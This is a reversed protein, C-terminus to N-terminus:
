KTITSIVNRVKKINDLQDQSYPEKSEPSYDLSSSKSAQQAEEINKDKESLQDKIFKNSRAISTDTEATRSFYYYCSIIFTIVCAIIILSPVLVLLWFCGSQYIRGDNYYCTLSCFGTCNLRTISPPQPTAQGANYTNSPPQLTIGCDISEQDSIAQSVVDAFLLTAICSFKNQTPNVTSAQSTFNILKSEGPQLNVPISNQTVDLTIGTDQGNPNCDLNLIYNTSVGVGQLSPNEVFVSILSNGGQLFNCYSQKPDIIGKSVETEYGVFTGVVDLVLEVALNSYYNLGNTTTPSFYLYNGGSNPGGFGLWWQPNSPDYLSQTTGNVEPAVFRNNPMYKIANAKMQDVFAQSEAQNGGYPLPFITNDYLGNAINMFQSVKCPVANKLGGNVINGLGPLCSHPDYNCFVNANQQNSNVSQAMGIKNCDTGFENALTVDDVFFWFTQGHDGPLSPFNINKGNDTTPIIYDYPHPYFTDRSGFGPQSKSNAIISEWPNTIESFNPSATINVTQDSNCSVGNILCQMNILNTATDQGCMIIAGQASPGLIGTPTQINQIRGFSYRFPTSTASGSPNFNDIKLTETQGNAEIEINIEAFIEPEPTIYFISCQPGMSVILHYTNFYPTPLWASQLLIEEFIPNNITDTKALRRSDKNAPCDYGACSHSVTGLDLSLSTIGVPQLLQSSSTVPNEILNQYIPKPIVGNLSPMPLFTPVRIDLNPNDTPINDSQNPSRCSGTTSHSPFLSTDYIVNSCQQNLQEQSNYLWGNNISRINGQKGQLRTFDVNPLFTYPNVCTDAYDVVDCIGVPNPTSCSPDLNFNSCAIPTYDPPTNVRQFLNLLYDPTNSFYTLPNSRKYLFANIQDNTVPVPICGSFDQCDDLFSSGGKCLDQCKTKTNLYQEFLVSSGYCYPITIESAVLKYRYVINTSTVTIKAPTTLVCTQTTPNILQCQQPSTAPVSNGGNQNNQIVTLNFLLSSSNGIGPTLRLDLITVTPLKNTTTSCNIFTTANDATSPNLYSSDIQACTQFSSVALISQQSRVSSIFIFLTIILYFVRM